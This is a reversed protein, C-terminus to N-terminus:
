ASPWLAALGSDFTCDERIFEPNRRHFRSVAEGTLRNTDHIMVVPQPRLNSLSQLEELVVAYTHNGDLFFLARDPRLDVWLQMSLTLGLGRHAHISLGEIWQGHRHGPHDRDLHSLSDPLEVTHVECEYGFELAAEYFLRASAGVNTGWEFVHTPRFRELVSGFFEVEQDGYAPLNLARIRPLFSM